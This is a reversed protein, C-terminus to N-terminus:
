RSRPVLRMYTAEMFMDKRILNVIGPVHRGFADYHLKKITNEDDDDDDDGSPVMSQMTTVNMLFSTPRIYRLKQPWTNFFKIVKIDEM